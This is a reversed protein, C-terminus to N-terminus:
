SAGSELYEILLKNRTYVWAIRRGGFAVAPLPPRVTILGLSRSKELQEELNSVQYCVHHLGGGRKLFGHVPSNDGAPEVLEILPDEPRKSRLFSVRVSQHPDHYIEHDWEADLSIAFGQAAERISPVVFGFHHFTGTPVWSLAIPGM